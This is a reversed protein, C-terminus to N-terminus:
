GRQIGACSTPLCDCRPTADPGGPGNYRLQGTSAPRHPFRYPSLSSQTIQPNRQGTDRHSNWGSCNSMIFAEFAKYEASKAEDSIQEALNTKKKGKRKRQGAGRPILLGPFGSSATTYSSLSQTGASQDLAIEPNRLCLPALSAAPMTLLLLGRGNDSSSSFLNTKQWQLLMQSYTYMHVHFTTTYKYVHKNNNNNNVKSLHFASTAIIHHLASQTSTHSHSLLHDPM